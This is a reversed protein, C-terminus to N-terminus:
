KTDTSVSCSHVFAATRMRQPVKGKMIHLRLSLVVFGSDYQDFAVAANYEQCLLVYQQKDHDSYHPRPGNM